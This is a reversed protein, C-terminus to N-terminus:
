EVLLPAGYNAKFQFNTLFHTLYFSIHTKPDFVSEEVQKKKKKVAFCFDIM